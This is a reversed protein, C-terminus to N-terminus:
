SPALTLTVDTTGPPIGASRASRDGSGTTSANGDGDVRVEVTVREPFTTGPIMVDATGIAFAMPFGGVPMRQAALPPGGEAGDARVFLFVVGAGVPDDGQWTITGRITSGDADASPATPVTEVPVAIRTRGSAGDVYEDEPMARQSCATLTLATLLLVINHPWRSM